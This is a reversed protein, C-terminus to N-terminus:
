IVDLDDFDKVFSKPMGMTLAIGKAAKRGDETLTGEATFYLGRGINKTTRLPVPTFPQFLDTLGEEIDGKSLNKMGDLVTDM